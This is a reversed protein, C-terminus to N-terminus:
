AFSEWCPDVLEPQVQLVQVHLLYAPLVLVELFASEDEQGRHDSARVEELPRGLAGELHVVELYSAVGEGLCAEVEPCAGEEELAVGAGFGTLVINEGRM